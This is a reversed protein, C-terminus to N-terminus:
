ESILEPQAPIAGSWSGTPAGNEDVTPSLGKKLRLFEESDVRVIDLYFYADAWDDNLKGSEFAARSKNTDNKYAEGFEKLYGNLSTNIRDREAKLDAPPEFHTPKPPEPKPQEAPLSQEGFDDGETYISVGNFVFPFYFKCANSVTRAVLMNAPHNRWNDKKPYLGATEAQKITYSEDFTQGRYTFRMTCVKDTKDIYSFRIGHQNMLGLLAVYGIQLAGSVEIIHIGQMSAFPALGLERGALIKVKAKHYDSVKKFLGSKAFSEAIGDVMEFPIMDLKPVSIEHKPEPKVIELELNQPKPKKKFFM